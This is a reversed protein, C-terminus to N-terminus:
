HPFLICKLLFIMITSSFFQFGFLLFSLPHCIFFSPHFIRILISVHSMHSLFFLSFDDLFFSLFFSLPLCLLTSILCFFFSCSLLSPFRFSFKSVLLYATLFPSFILLLSSSIFIFIRKFVLKTFFCSRFQFPFINSLIKLKRRSGFLLNLM